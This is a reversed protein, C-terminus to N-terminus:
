SSGPHRPGGPANLVSRDWYYGYAEFSYDNTDVNANREMEVIEMDSDAAVVGPDFLLIFRDSPNVLPSSPGFDPRTASVLDVIASTQFTAFGQAGIQVPDVDPWNTLLRCKIQTSTEAATETAVVTQAAYCTYVRSRRKAQPVIARVKIPGGSADGAVILRAGWVGLPDREDGQPWLGTEVVEMTTNITM